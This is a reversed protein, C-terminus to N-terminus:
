IFYQGLFRMANGVFLNEIIEEASINKNIELHLNKGDSNMYDRAHLLLYEKLLPFEEATWFGNVPNVIGDFDSGIAAINWANKGKKDLTEAIHRVQNWLLESRYTLMRKKSLNFFTKKLQTKDALRREDLQICFIGNSDSVKLIEDDFFNIDAQNFINNGNNSTNIRNEFSELGNVAGHSVIVPIDPKDELYKYYQKRSEVSMHKVDIHVRNHNTNDLLTSIVDFGLSSIGTDAGFGQDLMNGAIGSLSYAHGCMGNYFHHGASIFFPRYQWTKLDNVNDLIENVEARRNAYSNFAHFGEITLIVSLTDTVTDDINLNLEDINRALRYEISRGETTVWIGHLQRYFEYERKLDTFYDHNNQIFDIRTKGFGTIFDSIADPIKGTGLRGCFFGKEAPYLSAGIVKVNGKHLTTFGSQSFRTITTAINLIKEKLRPPNYHYISNEESPQPSNIFDKDFSKGFPKMSPHCHLDITFNASM